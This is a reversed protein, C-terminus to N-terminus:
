GHSEGGELSEKLLKRARTLLTYVTNPNKKLLGGIEQANYGEYYHLYVVDRYKSPLSLVARLVDRHEQSVPEGQEEFLEDLPVMRSHFVSRLLDRCQNIAVRLVWAKEHESSEFPATHLAYKLFVNQLIDETDATNKLHVMCVRWVMDSYTDMAQRVEEESRM